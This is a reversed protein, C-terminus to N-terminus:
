KIFEISFLRMPVFIPLRYLAVEEGYLGIDAYDDFLFWDGVKVDKSLQLFCQAKPLIFPSPSRNIISYAISLFSTTYYMLGENKTTIRVVYTWFVMSQKNKHTDMINLRVNMFREVHTYLFLYTILSHFIFCRTLSFDILQSNVMREWFSIIYFFVTVFKCALDM